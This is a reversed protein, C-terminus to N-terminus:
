REQNQKKRHIAWKQAQSQKPQHSKRQRIKEKIDYGKEKQIQNFERIKRLLEEQSTKVPSMNNIYRELDAALKLNEMSGSAKLEKIYENANKIINERTKVAKQKALSEPIDKGTNLAVDIQNMRSLDYPHSPSLHKIWERDEQHIREQTKSKQTHGRQARTTANMDIGYKKQM